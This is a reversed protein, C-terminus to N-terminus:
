KVIGWSDIREELAKLQRIAAENGWSVYIADPKLTHLPNPDGPTTDTRRSNMRWGTAYAQQYDRSLYWNVFIKAANPHPANNYWGIDENGGAWGPPHEGLYAPGTLEEVKTGIGQKQMQELVDMPMGMTIPKSCSVLWETMQRYDRSFVVEHNLFMDKLWDEGVAKSLHWTSRSGTGPRTPDFWVIKGKFEPKTLDESKNLAEKSICDRNVFGLTMGGAGIPSYLFKKADDVFGEAFGGMWNKDDWRDPVILADRLPALANIPLLSFVTPDTSALIVDWNYLGSARERVVKALIQTGRAATYELKIDPFTKAWERTVIERQMAAPPGSVFVTGEKRAAELVKAWEDEWAERAVAGAVSQSLLAAALLLSPLSRRRVAEIM